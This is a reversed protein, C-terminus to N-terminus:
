RLFPTEADKSKGEQLLLNGLGFLPIVLDETQAGRSSELITIARDYFEIAKTAKGTSGLAKGM